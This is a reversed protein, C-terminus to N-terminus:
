GRSQVQEVIFEKMADPLSINMTSMTILTAPKAFNALGTCVVKACGCVRCIPNSPTVRHDPPPTRESIAFRRKL